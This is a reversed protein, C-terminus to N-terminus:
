EEGFKRSCNGCCNENSKRDPQYQGVFIQRLIKVYCEKSRCFQRVDESMERINGGLDQSNFLLYFLSSSRVGPAAKDRRGARGMAQVIGHMKNPPRVMIVIKIDPIDRGLLMRNTTLWCLIDHTRAAMVNDDSESVSSHNQVFPSEDCLRYGTEQALWSHVLGAQEQTRFFIITKKFPTKNRISAVLKDLVLIRLLTLLGSKFIGNSDTVGTMPCQSSPRRLVFIKHHRQIPGEAILMPKKSRGMCFTMKDVEDQTATASMAGIPSGREMWVQQRLIMDVMGPRFNEWHGDQGQHFEDVILGRIRKLQKLKRLITQGPDSVFSEPHGFLLPFKGDIIEELSSSLNADGMAEYSGSSKIKGKMSLVAVPCLPNSLQDSMISTLPLGVLVVSSECGEYKRQALAFLYIIMMKGMGTPVIVLLDIGNLLGNVAIDQFDSLQFGLALEDLVSAVAAKSEPSFAQPFNERKIISAQEKVPKGAMDYNYAAEEESISLNYDVDLSEESHIPQSDNESSDTLGQGQSNDYESESSEFDM